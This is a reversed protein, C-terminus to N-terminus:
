ICTGSAVMHVSLLLFINRLKELKETWYPLLLFCLMVILYLELYQARAYHLAWLFTCFLCGSKCKSEKNHLILFCCLTVVRRSEMTWFFLLLAPSDLSVFINEKLRYYWKSYRSCWSFTAKPQLLDILFLMKVYMYPMFLVATNCSVRSVRPYAGTWFFETRTLGISTGWWCILIEWHSKLM